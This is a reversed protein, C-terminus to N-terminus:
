ESKHLITYNEETIETIQKENYDFTGTFTNQEEQYEIDKWRTVTYTTGEVELERKSFANAYKTAYDTVNFELDIQLCYNANSTCKYIKNDVVIYSDTGIKFLQEETEIPITANEEAFYANYIEDVNEVDKEYIEKTKKKIEEQSQRRNSIIVFTSILFSLMFLVTILTILTIAGREKKM